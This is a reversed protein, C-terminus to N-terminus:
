GVAASRLFFLVFYQCGPDMSVLRCSLGLLAMGYVVHPVISNRLWIWLSTMLDVKNLTVSPVM